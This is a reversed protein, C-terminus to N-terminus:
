CKNHVLHITIEDRAFITALFSDYWDKVEIPAGVDVVVVKM